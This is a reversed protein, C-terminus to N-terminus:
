ESFVGLLEPFYNPGTKQACFGIYATSQPWITRNWDLPTVDYLGDGLPIYSANWTNTFFSDLFRMQLRWNTILSYGTNVLTVDGCFGEDWDSHVRLTAQLESSICIGDSCLNSECDQNVRCMRGDRCPACSGGCDVDSETGNQFGDDCAPPRPQCRGGTCLRTWCDEASACVQGEDCPVCPGGCDVDTEGHNVMGDRCLEDEDVPSGDLCVPPASGGAYGVAVRVGSPTEGQVAIRLGAPDEFSDGVALRSNWVDLFPEGRRTMDLLAPERSATDFSLNLEDAARITVGEHVPATAYDPGGDFAGIPQRYELYYYCPGPLWFPCLSPDMPVRLAQAGATSVEIPEIEFVGRTPATVVGCGEIWGQAAKHFASFHATSRGMPDYLDGYEDAITCASAPAIPRTGCDYSRAHWFGINHGLEHVFVYTGYWGNYWTQRAPSGPAGVEGLGGFWCDGIAPYYYFLHDYQELDVGANTAAARASESIAGVDCGQVPPVEYWGHVDGTLQLRGFSSEAYHAAMSDPNTFAVRAVDEPVASDPTGFHVMIIGIRRTGEAAATIRQGARARNVAPDPAITDCVFDDNESPARAVAQGRTQTGADEVAEGGCALASAASVWAMSLVLQKRQMVAIFMGMRREMIDGGM